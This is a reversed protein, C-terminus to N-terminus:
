KTRKHKSICIDPKGPLKKNNKRYRIGEAWLLKRFITEPKTDISRIKQMLESRQKTTEFNYPM